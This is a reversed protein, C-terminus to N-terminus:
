HQIELLKNKLDNEMRAMEAEAAQRKQRGERQIKLVDDLTAILDANTKKLTDMDVIGRESEKATEVSAMHLAEANKRLLENTVDTVQRQAQAAETSHAIGLALVMQSKWLPITNVITTQIKEVMMTDNNQVLRIQPATQLSIMRTLELDHIKKEFRNCKEDLDKAAQADEPLGSMRARNELELLKGKRVEALKKKGALIYMSLEKFYNLNQQYMRDMMASDKMLRVQHKQLSDTIKEVNSEAKDYRLKMTEIKNSQKKFFGFLGKEEEVDFGKLEVVVNTILEGVEGLDQARVSNLAEDSFDAMKKQTGAGYQLIQTTNEIDIKGAFDNVMQQEKPTLVMQAMEKQVPDMEPAEKMVPALEEKPEELEPELTLVPADDFDKFEETM